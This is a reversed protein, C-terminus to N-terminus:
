LSGHAFQIGTERKEIGFRVDTGGHLSITLIRDGTQEVQTFDPKPDHIFAAFFEFSWRVFVVLVLYDRIEPVIRRASQARYIQRGTRSRLSPQTTSLPAKSFRQVSLVTGPTRIGREGGAAVGVFNFDRGEM